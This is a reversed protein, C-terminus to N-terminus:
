KKLLQDIKKANRRAVSMITIMPNVGPSSPLASADGIFLGALEYSEASDDCFSVNETGMRASGMIHASFLSIKNPAIERRNIEEEFRDIDSSSLSTKKESRVELGDVHLTSLEMAGSAALIRATEVLGRKLHEKDLASLSYSCVPRGQKDITVKGSGIERLLVITGSRRAMKLMLDKHEKGSTWPSASSFLAPHAPVAEVWFGHHFGDLNLWKTVKVTQPPGSWMSIPKEYLGSIATTPHLKLNKGVNKKLGSRLLIAPTNISGAAVVVARCSIEFQFSDQFTAQVGAARGNRKLVTDARARFIFRAGSLQAEALFNAPTSQKCGFECGFTCYGCRELCGTANRWIIDYDDPISYGLAKCGEFLVGNNENLQSENRNVKLKSWVYDVCEDFEKGRLSSVGESSEWEEKLWEPPKISTNWNVTTSGGFTHGELLSFALDKTAARGGQEFLKRTLEYEQGKAFEERPVYDGSELFIVKWGSKALYEGIVSGGAGSGIICVDCEVIENKAPNISSTLFNTEPATAISQRPAYGLDQWSPNSQSGGPIYGYYTFCIIRKLAQFATRKLAVKSQAFKEFLFKEREGETMGSFKKSTGSLLLNQFRSEILKLLRRIQERQDSSFEEFLVREVEKDVGISSASRKYFESFESSQVSPVFADCLLSLTRRENVTLM